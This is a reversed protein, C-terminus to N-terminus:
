ASELGLHVTARTCFLCLPPMHYVAPPVPHVAPPMSHVLPLHHVAPPVTHVTFRLIHVAPVPHAAPSVPHVGPPVPVVPPVTLHVHHIPIPPSTFLSIWTLKGNGKCRPLTHSCADWPVHMEHHMCKWCGRLLAHMHFYTYQLIYELILALGNMYYTRTCPVRARWKRYHFRWYPFFM